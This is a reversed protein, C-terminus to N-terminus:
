HRHFSVQNWLDDNWLDPRWEVAGANDLVRVVGELQKDRVVAIATGYHGHENLNVGANM